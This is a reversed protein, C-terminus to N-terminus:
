EVFGLQQGIALLARNFSMIDEEMDRLLGPQTARIEGSKEGIAALIEAVRNRLMGFYLKAAEKYTNPLKTPGGKRRFVSYSYTMFNERTGLVINSPLYAISLKIDDLTNLQQPYNLGKIGVDKSGPAWDTRKQYGVGGQGQQPSSEQLGPIGPVGSGGAGQGKVPLGRDRIQKLLSIIHSMLANRVEPGYNNSIFTGEEGELKRYINVFAEFISKIYKDDHMEDRNFGYNRDLATLASTLDAFDGSTFEKGDIQFKISEKKASNALYFAWRIARQFEPKLADVDKEAASSLNARPVTHRLVEWAAATDGGWRGDNKHTGVSFGAAMLALQLKEVDPDKPIAKGPKRSKRVALEMDKKHKAQAQEPTMPPATKPQIVLPPPAGKKEIMNPIFSSIKVGYTQLPKILTNYLEDNKDGAQVEDYPTKLEKAVWNKLQVAKRRAAPRNKDLVKLLENSQDNLADLLRKLANRYNNLNKSEAPGSPQKTAKLGASQSTHIIDQLAKISTYIDYFKKLFLSKDVVDVQKSLDQIPGWISMYVPVFQKIVKYTKNVNERENIDLNEVNKFLDVFPNLKGIINKIIPIYQKNAIKLRSISGIFDELDTSVDEQIFAEKVSANIDKSGAAEFATGRDVFPNSKRLEEITKDVIKAAEFEGEDELKNATAILKTMVEAYKGTPQKTSREVMKKHEEVITEVKGGEDEAPVLVPGGGPHAQGILQDGTEKTVNYFKRAVAAYSRIQHDVLMAANEEGFSDLDNALSTLENIVSATVDDASAWEPTKPVFAQPKASRQERVQKLAQLYQNKDKIPGVTGQQRLLRMVGLHEAESVDEPIGRMGRYRSRWDTPSVAVDGPQQGPAKGHMRKLVDQSTPVKIDIDKYSLEPMKSAWDQYPDNAESIDDSKNLKPDSLVYRIDEINPLEQGSEDVPDVVLPGGPTTYREIYQNWAAASMPGWSGDPGGLYESKPDSVNMGTAKFLLAQIKGILTPSLSSKTKTPKEVKEPEVKVQSPDFSVDGKPEQLKQYEMMIPSWKLEIKNMLDSFMLGDWGPILKNKTGVPLSGWIKEVEKHSIAEKQISWGKEQAIKYFEDM